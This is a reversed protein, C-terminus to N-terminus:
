EAGEAGQPEAEAAAKAKKGKATTKKVKPPNLAIVFKREHVVEIGAVRLAQTVTAPCDPMDAHARITARNLESARERIWGPLFAYEANGATAFILTQLAVVAGEEAAESTDGGALKVSSPNDRWGLQFYEGYARVLPNGSADRFADPRAECYARLAAECADADAQLTQLAVAFTAATKAVEDEITTQIRKKALTAESWDKLLAIVGGDDTPIARPTTTIQPPEPTTPTDPTQM